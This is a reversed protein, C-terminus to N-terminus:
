EDNSLDLTPLSTVAGSRYFPNQALNWYADEIRPTLHPQINVARPRGYTVTPMALWRGKIKLMKIGASIDFVQLGAQNPGASAGAFGFHYLGRQLNQNGLILNANAQSSRLAVKIMSSTEIPSLIGHIPQWDVIDLLTAPYCEDPPASPRTGGGLNVCM